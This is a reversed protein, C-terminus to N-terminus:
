RQAAARKAAWIQGIKPLVDWLLCAQDDTIPITREGIHMVEGEKTMKFGVNVTPPDGDALELLLKRFDNDTM